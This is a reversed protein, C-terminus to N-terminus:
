PTMSAKSKLSSGPLAFDCLSCVHSSLAGCVLNRRHSLCSCHPMANRSSQVRRRRPRLRRGPWAQRWPRMGHSHRCVRRRRSRRRSSHRRHAPSATHLHCRDHPKLSTCALPLTGSGSTAKVHTPWELEGINQRNMHRWNVWQVKSALRKQAQRPLKLAM